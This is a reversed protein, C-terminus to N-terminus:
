GWVWEGQALRRAESDMMTETDRTATDLLRTYEAETCIADLAEQAAEATTPKTTYLRLKLDARVELLRAVSAIRPPPGKWTQDPRRACDKVFHEVRAPSWIMRLSPQKAPVGRRVHKFDWRPWCWWTWELASLKHQQLIQTSRLMTAPKLPKKGQGPVKKRGTKRRFVLSWAASVIELRQEASLGSHFRPPQPARYPSPLGQRRAFVRHVPAPVVYRIGSSVLVTAPPRAGSFEVPVWDGSPDKTLVAM